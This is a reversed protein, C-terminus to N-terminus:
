IRVRPSGLSKVSSHRLKRMFLTPATSDVMVNNQENIQGPSSQFAYDLIGLVSGAM